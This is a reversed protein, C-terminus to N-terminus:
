RAAARVSQSRRARRGEGGAGPETRVRQPVAAGAPRVRGQRGAPACAACVCRAGPQLSSQRAASRSIPAQPRPACCRRARLVARAVRRTGARVQTNFMRGAAEVAPWGALVWRALSFGLPELTTDVGYEDPAPVPAPCASCPLALCLSTVGNMALVPPQCRTSCCPRRRARAAPKCAAPLVSRSACLAHRRLLWVPAAARPCVAVILACGGKM